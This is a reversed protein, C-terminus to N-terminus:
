EDCNDCDDSDIACDCDADSMPEYTDDPESTEFLEPEATAEAKQKDMFSQFLSEENEPIDRGEMCAAFQERSMREHKLLYDAVELLKDAHDTLLQVCHAYAKEITAKIEDDITGATRDSYSVTREYNRGVFIEGGDDYAVPGLKKSMGYVTVMKRAINTAQQLDSSAGTTIDDLQLQEAVRGGLCSVIYEYMENRSPCRTDDEPLYVTM